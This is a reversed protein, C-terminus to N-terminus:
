KLFVYRWISYDEPTVMENEVSISSWTGDTGWPVRDIYEKRWVSYDAINVAGDDNFDGLKRCDVRIKQEKEAYKINDGMLEVNFNFVNRKVDQPSFKYEFKNDTSDLSLFVSDKESYDLWSLYDIPDTKLYLNKIKSVTDLLVESTVPVFNNEDTGLCVAQSGNDLKRAIESWHSILPCPGDKPARVEKDTELYIVAIGKNQLETIVDKLVLPAAGKTPSLDPDREIGDGFFVLIKKAGERWQIERSAYAEYMVRLYAEAKGDDGNDVRGKNDKNTKMAQVYSSVVTKDKTLPVALKFPCAFPTFGCNCCDDTYTECCYPFGKNDQFPLVGFRVKNKFLDELHLTLEDIKKAAVDIFVSMSGPTTDFAFLIDVEPSVENINLNFYDSKISTRCETDSADVVGVANLFFLLFLIIKKM